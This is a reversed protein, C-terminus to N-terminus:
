IVPGNCTPGSAGFLESFHAQPNQLSFHKRKGKDSASQPAEGADVAMQWAEAAAIAREGATAAPATIGPDERQRKRTLAAKLTRESSYTKGPLEPHTFVAPAPPAADAADPDDSGEASDAEPAANAADRLDGQDRSVTGPDVGIVDAIERQTLGEETLEAVAELCGLAEGPPYGWGRGPGASLPLCRRSRPLGTAPRPL